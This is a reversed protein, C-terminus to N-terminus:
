KPRTARTPSGGETACRGTRSRALLRAAYPSRRVAEEQRLQSVGIYTHGRLQNKRAPQCSLEIDVSLLRRTRSRRHPMTRLGVCASRAPAPARAILSLRKSLWGSWSPLFCSSLPDSGPPSRVAGTAPEPKMRIPPSSIGSSGPRKTSTDGSSVRCTMAPGQRGTRRRRRRRRRRGVTSSKRRSRRDVVYCSIPPAILLNRNLMEIDSSPKTAPGSGLSCSGRPCARRPAEHIPAGM